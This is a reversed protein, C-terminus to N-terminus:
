RLRRVMISDSVGEVTMKCSGGSPAIIVAPRYAYHYTYAYSAQQWIQGNTLKFISDGSWGQFTGEIQSEIAGRCGSGAGSAVQTVQAAFKALWQNLADMEAPSLRDLGANKFEAATMFRRVDM